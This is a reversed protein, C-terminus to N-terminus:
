DQNRNRIRNASRYYDELLGLRQMIRMPNRHAADDAHSQQIACWPCTAKGSRVPEGCSDCNEDCLTIEGDKFVYTYNEADLFFPTPSSRGIQMVFYRCGVIRAREAARQKTEASSRPGAIIATICNNPVSALLLGNQEPITLPHAILRREEEYSWCTSKTFYAASFVGRQLWEVHRPKCSQAAYNLLGSLQDSPEDQYDVDGFSYDSVTSSLLEEDVEIVLGTQNNAYHAWMPVVSPSRSFCTTPWQPIDGIVEKYYALVEPEQDYNITLFLEFPDNFDKPYSCKFTAVNSDSFVRDLTQESLYKYIRRM